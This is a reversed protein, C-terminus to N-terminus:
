GARGREVMAATREPDQMKQGSKGRKGTGKRRGEPKEAEELAKEAWHGKAGSKQTPPLTYSRREMDARSLPQVCGFRMCLVLFGGGRGEGREGGAGGSQVCVIVSLAAAIRNSKCHAM